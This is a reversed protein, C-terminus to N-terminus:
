LFFKPFNCAYHCLKPCHYFLRGFILCKQSITRCWDVWWVGIWIKVGVKFGHLFIELSLPAIRNSNFM